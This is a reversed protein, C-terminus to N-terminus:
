YEKFNKDQFSSLLGFSNSKLDPAECTGRNIVARLDTGTIHHGRLLVFIVNAVTKM